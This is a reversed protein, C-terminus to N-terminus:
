KMPSYDTAEVFVSEIKKVIAGKAESESRVRQWEPDKGFAEWNQKAAERSPHALIYILTNASLPADAPTWYGINTMGHKEFLKMTHERFRAHLAGLKGDNTTYTRIEYVRGAEASAMGMLHSNGSKGTWYGLTFAAVVIGSIIMRKM